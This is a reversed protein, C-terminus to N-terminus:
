RMVIQGSVGANGSLGDFLHAADEPPPEVTTDPVLGTSDFFVGLMDDNLGEKDSLDSGEAVGLEEAATCIEGMRIALWRGANLGLFFDTAQALVTVEVTRGPPALAVLTPTDLFTLHTVDTLDQQEPAPSPPPWARSGLAPRALLMVEALGERSRGHRDKGSRGPVGAIAPIPRAGHGASLALIYGGELGANDGTLRVRLSAGGIDRVAPTTHGEVRCLSVQGKEARLALRQLGRAALLSIRPLLPNRLWTSTARTLSAAM